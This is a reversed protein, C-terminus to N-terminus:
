NRCHRGSRRRRRIAGVAREPFRHYRRGEQRQRAAQQGLARRDSDQRRAQLEVPHLDVDRPRHVMQPRSQRQRRRPRRQVAGRRGRRDAQAQDGSRHARPDAADCLAVSRHQGARPRAHLPSAGRVHLAERGDARRREGAQRHDARCLRSVAGPIKEAGPAQQGLGRLPDARRRCRRRRRGVSRQVRHHRAQAAGCGCAAGRGVDEIRFDQAAAAPAFGLLGLLVIAHRTTM